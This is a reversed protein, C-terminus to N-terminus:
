KFMISGQNFPSTNKSGQWDTFLETGAELSGLPVEMSASPEAFGLEFVVLSM